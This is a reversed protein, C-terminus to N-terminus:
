SHKQSNSIAFSIVGLVIEAIAIWQVENAWTWNPILGAIGRIIIVVALISLTTKVM